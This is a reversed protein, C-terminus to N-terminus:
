PIYIHDCLFIRLPWVPHINVFHPVLISGSVKKDLTKRYKKKETKIGSTLFIGQLM